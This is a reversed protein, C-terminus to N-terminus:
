ERDNDIIGIRAGTRRQCGTDSVQGPFCTFSSPVDDGIEVVLAFTQEIEDIDDDITINDLTILLVGKETNEGEVKFTFMTDTFDDGTLFFLHTALDYM